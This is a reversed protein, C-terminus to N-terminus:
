ETLEDADFILTEGVLSKDLQIPMNFGDVSLLGLNKCGWSIIECVKARNMRNKRECADMDSFLDFGIEKVFYDAVQYIEAEVGYEIRECAECFIEVRPEENNNYTIKRLTLDGGCYKCKCRNSRKKLENIRLDDIPNKDISEVWAETFELGM